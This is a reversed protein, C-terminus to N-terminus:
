HVVMVQEALDQAHNQLAARAEVLADVSAREDLGAPRQVLASVAPSAAPEAERYYVEVQGIPAAKLQELLQAFRHRADRHEPYGRVPAVPWAGLGQLGSRAFHEGRAGGSLLYDGSSSPKQPTSPVTMSFGGSSGTRGGPTGSAVTYGPVHAGPARTTLM